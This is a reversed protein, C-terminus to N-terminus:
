AAIGNEDFNYWYNFDIGLATALATETTAGRSRYWGDLVALAEAHDCIWSLDKKLTERLSFGHDEADRGDSKLAVADFGDNRDSEAPNFVTHGLSRLHDAATDFAPFNYHEIGSMPGALYIRM